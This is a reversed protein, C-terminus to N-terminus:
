GPLNETARLLASLPAAAAATEAQARAWTRGAARLRDKGARTLRVRRIRRNEPDPAVEILGERELPRMTRSLTSPDLLMAEAMDAMAAAPTAAVQALIGLQNINLGHPALRAEYFATMRRAALRSQFCFCDLVPAALTAHSM